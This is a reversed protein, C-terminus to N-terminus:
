WRHGSFEAVMETAFCGQHNASKNIEGRGKIIQLNM